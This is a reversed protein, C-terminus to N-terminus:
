KRSKQRRGSGRIRSLAVPTVGLYSAVMYQPVRRAVDPMAELFLAYRRAASLQLFEYERQEKDLFHREAVLRALREWWAQGAYLRELRPFDFVLLESDEVAQVYTRSPEGRLLERYASAFDPAGRFAKTAEAGAEDIYYLRLLGQRVVAFRRADDGPRLFWEGKALRMPRALSELRPWEAEPVPSFRRGIERWLPAASAM